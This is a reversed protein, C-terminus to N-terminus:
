DHRSGLRARLTTLARFQLQKVAGESRGLATAVERISRQEAFRAVVVRRQDAPLTEVLRFLRARDEVEELTVPDVAESPTEEIERGARVARDAIANAAIRFLWAVFPVGRWEFRPLHELARHFVESTVDSAEDRDRVRRIAYAYVREFNAEYLADFRAPDRQAAAIARREATERREDAHVEADSRAPARRVM